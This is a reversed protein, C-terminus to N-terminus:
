KEKMKAKADLVKQGVSRSYPNNKASTTSCMVQWLVAKQSSSLNRFRGDIVAKVEAQTYHGNGDADYQSRIECFSVYTDPSVGFTNAVEVSIMQSDSMIMSLAALQDEVDSSFDVCVRWRDVDELGEEGAAEEAENLEMVFDYALDDDMGGGTLELFDETDVGDLRMRLYEDMSLGEKLAQQM